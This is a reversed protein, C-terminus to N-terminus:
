SCDQLRHSSDELSLGTPKSSCVFSTLTMSPGFLIFPGVLFHADGWPRACEDVFKALASSSSVKFGSVVDVRLIKGSPASGHHAFLIWSVRLSRHSVHLLQAKTITTLYGPYIQSLVFWRTRCYQEGKLFFIPSIKFCTFKGNKKLLLGRHRIVALLSPIGHVPRRRPRQHRYM